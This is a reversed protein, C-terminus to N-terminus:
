RAHTTLVGGTVASSRAPQITYMENPGFGPVLTENTLDDLDRQAQMLGLQVRKVGKAWELRTQTDMPNVVADLDNLIDQTIAETAKREDANLAGSATRMLRPVNVRLAQIMASDRNRQAERALEGIEVRLADVDSRIPDLSERARSWAQEVVLAANSDSPMGSRVDLLATVAAEKETAEKALKALDEEAADRLKKLQDAVYTSTYMAERGLEAEKKAVEKRYAELRDAAKKPLGVYAKWAATDKVSKTSSSSTSM